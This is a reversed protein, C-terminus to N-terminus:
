SGEDLRWRNAHFILPAYGGFFATERIPLNRLTYEMAAAVFVPRAADLEAQLDARLADDPPGDEPLRSRVESVVGAQEEMLAELEEKGLETYARGDPAIGPLSGLEVAARALRLAYRPRNGNVPDAREASQWAEAAGQWDGTRALATALADWDGAVSGDLATLRAFREASGAYDGGAYSLNGLHRLAWRLAGLYRAPDSEMAEIARGYWQRVADHRAQDEYLKGVRFLDMADDGVAVAGSEVRATTEAAVRRSDAARGLNRYANSLYFSTEIGEGAAHEAELAAVAMSQAEASGPRDGARGRAFALRYLLPGDAADAAALQELLPLATAYDGADYLAVARARLGDGASGDEAAAPLCACLLTVIALTGARHM